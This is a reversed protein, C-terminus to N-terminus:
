QKKLKLAIRFQETGDKDPTIASPFVANQFLPSEELISLLESASAASGTIQINEGSLNLEHLRATDPIRETMEMLVDLVSVHSERIGDVKEVQLEIKDIENELENVEAVAAKLEEFRNDIKRLRNRNSMIRSGVFMSGAIILLVLLIATIYYGIRGPKKRLEPPMFNIKMAEKKLGKLALGYAAGFQNISVNGEPLPSIEIRDSKQDSVIDAIRKDGNEHNTFFLFTKDDSKNKNLLRYLENKLTIASDSGPFFGNFMRSFFLRGNQLYGFESNDSDGILYFSESTRLEESLSLIYNSLAISSPELGSAGIDKGFSIYPNLDEKKAVFLLIKIQNSEDNEDIIQADFYIDNVPIPIYKEMEYQLATHLGERVAIPLDIIRQVSLDSPICIFFSAEKINGSLLYEDVVMRVNKLRITVESSPEISKSYRGALQIGKISTKLHVLSVRDRRIDIGISHQFIM